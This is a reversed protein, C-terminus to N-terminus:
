AFIWAAAPALAAADLQGLRLVLRHTAPFIRPLLQDRVLRVRLGSLGSTNILFGGVDILRELQRHRAVALRCATTIADRARLVDFLHRRAIRLRDRAHVYVRM